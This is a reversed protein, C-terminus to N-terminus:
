GQWFSVTRIDLAKSVSFMVGQSSLEEFLSCCLRVLAGERGKRSGEVEKERLCGSVCGGFHSALERFHHALDEPGLLHSQQHQTQVGRPLRRYQVLQLQVLVDSGNRRNPEVHLRHRILINLKINPIHPSLILNPREPPM